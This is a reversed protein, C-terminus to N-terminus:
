QTSTTSAVVGAPGSEVGGPTDTVTGTAPATPTDVDTNGAAVNESGTCAPDIANENVPGPPAATAPAVEYAPPVLVAVNVGDAGNAAAVAYVAVTDPACSAAPLAILAGTDHDNV